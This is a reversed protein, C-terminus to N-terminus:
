DIALTNMTKFGRIATGKARQFFLKLLEPDHPEPLFNGHEGDYYVLRKETLLVRIIEHSWSIRTFRQNNILDNLTEIGDGQDIVNKVLNIFRVLKIFTYLSKRPLDSNAPVMASSRMSKINPEWADGVIQSFITSNPALYFLSPGLLVRKGMLFIITNIVDEPRQDPLGIIFHVETLFPSSELFPLLSLFDPGCPRGQKETVSQSADVLSFNLRRFGAAFMDDLTAADMGGAYIGNMASLTLGTGHFLKLVQRFYGPDLTLMDDEFDVAQINADLCQSIEQEISKLSRRRYPVPPRGCFACHFPCGRSTLFFTYNKKGIRYDGPNVLKRDPILDINNEVHIGSIHLDPGSKSCVGEIEGACAAGGQELAAVLRFFPTEGEGRIVYDVYPSKLVHEPFLTPHTGGMVTVIEPSVEKACQAVELAELSYTTFLSSVAVVDPTRRRMENKMENYDCGFRYYRAFFSLPTSTGERYYHELERFPHHRLVKPKRNTRFDLISIDAIPQIKTALYLLALPYTRIPTDYFDEIPPQVLLVKVVYIIISFPRRAYTFSPNYWKVKM